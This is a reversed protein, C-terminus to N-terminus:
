TKGEVDLGLIKMPVDAPRMEAVVMKQEVLLRLLEFAADVDQSLPGALDAARRDARDAIDGLQLPHLVVVLVINGGDIHEDFQHVVVLGLDMVHAFSMLDGVFVLVHRGGAQELIEDVFGLLTAPEQELRAAGGFTGTVSRKRM